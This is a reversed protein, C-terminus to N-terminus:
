TTRTPLTLAAAPPLSCDCAAISTEDSLTSIAGFGSARRREVDGAEERASHPPGGRGGAEERAARSHSGGEASSRGMVLGGFGSAVECGAAPPRARNPPLKLGM